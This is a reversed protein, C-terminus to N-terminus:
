RTSRMWSWPLPVASSACIPPINLQPWRPVAKRTALQVQTDAAGCVQSLIKAIEQAERDLVDLNNGYVNVVVSATYGSLIEEIRETLFTKVSFNAGPFQVLAKRIDSQAHEAAEDEAPKLDVNLKRYQTGTPDDAGEAKARQAVMRIIPHKLTARVYLPRALPQAFM